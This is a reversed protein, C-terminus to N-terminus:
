NDINKIAAAMKEAVSVDPAIGFVTPGSGSMMSALAGKDLMEKKYRDIIDHKEITVSELV